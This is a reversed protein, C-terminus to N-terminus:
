LSTDKIGIFAFVFHHGNKHNVPVQFIPANLLYLRWFLLRNRDPFVVIACQLCVCPMMLFLCLVSVTKLCSSSLLSVLEGTLKISKESAM